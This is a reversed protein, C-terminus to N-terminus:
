GNNNDRLRKLYDHGEDTTKHMIHNIYLHLEEAEPVNFYKIFKLAIYGCYMISMCSMNVITDKYMPSNVITVSNCERNVTYYDGLIASPHTTISSTGYVSNYEKIYYEGLEKCIHYLTPNRNGLEDKFIKYAWHHPRKVNYDQIYKEYELKYASLKAKDFRLSKTYDKDIKEQNLIHNWRQVFQFNYFLSLREQTDKQFIFENYIYTEYLSRYITSAQTELGQRLCHYVGLLDLSAKSTITFLSNEYETKSKIKLSSLYNVIFYFAYVKDLIEKYKKYEENFIPYVQEIALKYYDECIHNYKNVITFYEIRTQMDKLYEDNKGPNQKSVVGLDFVYYETYPKKGDIREEITETIFYSTTDGEVRWAVKFQYQDLFAQVETFDMEKDLIECIQHKLYESFFVNFQFIDVTLENM